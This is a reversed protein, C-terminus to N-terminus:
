PFCGCKMIAANFDNQTACPNSSPTFSTAAGNSTCRCSTTTCDLMCTSTPCTRTTSCTTGGLPSSTSSCSGGGGGDPGDMQLVGDTPMGGDPLPGPGTGASIKARYIVFDAAWYMYDGVFVLDNFEQQLDTQITVVDTGDYTASKFTIPRSRDLWYVRSGHAALVYPNDEGSVVITPVGASRTTKEIAGKTRSSFFVYGDNVAVDTIIGENAVLEVPSGTAQTTVAYVTDIGTAFVLLGAPDYGLSGAGYDVSNVVTQVSGGSKAIKGVVAGCCSGTAYIWSNDMAIEGVDNEFQGVGRSAAGGSKTVSHLDTNELWFVDNGDVLIRYTYGATPSLQIDGKGDLGVRHIGDFHDTYYLFAGDSAIGEPKGTRSIPEPTGIGGGVGGDDGGSCASVLIAVGTGWSRM